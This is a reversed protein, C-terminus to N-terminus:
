KFYSTEFKVSPFFSDFLCFHIHKKFQADTTMFLTLGLHASGHVTQAVGVPLYPYCGFSFSSLVSNMKGSLMGVVEFAITFFVAVGAPLM